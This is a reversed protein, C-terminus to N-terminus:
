VYVGECVHVQMCSYVLRFTPYHESQSESSQVMSEAELRGSVVRKQWTVSEVEGSEVRWECMYEKVGGRPEWEEERSESKKRSEESTKVVIM